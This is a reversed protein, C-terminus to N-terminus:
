SILSAHYILVVTEELWFQTRFTNLDVNDKESIGFMFRFVIIRTLLPIWAYGNILDNKANNVHLTLRNFHIMSSVLRKIELM